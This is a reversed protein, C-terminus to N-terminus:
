RGGDAPYFALPCDSVPAMRSFRGCVPLPQRVVNRLRDRLRRLRGSDAPPLLAPRNANGPTLRRLAPSCPLNPKVTSPREATAENPPATTSICFTEAVHRRLALQM